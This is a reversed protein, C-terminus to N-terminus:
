SKKAEREAKKAEEKEILRILDDEFPLKEIKAPDFPPLVPEAVGYRRFVSRCEELDWHDCYPPGDAWADRYGATAFDLAKEREGLRAALLALPVQSVSKEKAIRDFVRRAEAEQGLEALALARRAEYNARRPDGLDNAIGVLAGFMDAASQFRGQEHHWLAVITMGNMKGFVFGTGEIRKLHDEAVASSLTGQRLRLELEFALLYARKDAEIQHKGARTRAQEWAAEAGALDGSLVNEGALNLLCWVVLDSDGDAESIRLAIQRLKASEAIKGMAMLCIALNGVSVAPAVGSRIYGQISKTHALAARNNMGLDLLSVGLEALMRAAAAEDNQVPPADFGRPFWARFLELREHHYALRFMADDLGSSKFLEWAQELRGAANLAQVRTMALALDERSRAEDLPRLLRSALADSVHAGAGERAAGSLSALVTHRIAPHLEYVVAEPEFQLLARQELDPLARVLWDDAKEAVSSWAAQAALAADFEAQREELNKRRLGDMVAQARAKAQPSGALQWKFYAEDIEANNTQYYLQEESWLEPKEPKEPEPPRMPNLLGILEQTLELNAMAISGLLAKQQEDLDDFAQKLIHNQRSVLQEAVLGPNAGGRPDDVWRDFDGRAPGFRAILGATVGVALPHCEFKESLFRQMRWADGRVGADALVRAADPPALGKLRMLAVGPIAQGADNTLAHPTLRSSALLKGKRAQALLALAEDDEPRFCARPARDLGLDDRLVEADTDAMHEKGARNYAVLVRELGDLTLLWPRSDLERLLEAALIPTRQRRFEKPPRGRVYAMAHVCFDHLDAGQEYFSYWFRGAWDGRTATARERLWHSTLMSKGMGGIAHVLLMADGSQAWADIEQLESVRGVFPRRQIYPKRVFHFEPARAPAVEDPDGPAASPPTAVRPLPEEEAAAKALFARFSEVAAAKLADVSSFSALITSKAREIFAEQLARAEDGEAAAARMEALTMAYDDAMQFMLRPIGREVARRFELETLSLREPNRRPCEPRQGYRAGILGVYFDAADVKALSADILDQPLAADTEQMLPVIRQGNMCLIVAKRHEELDRFTSSLMAKYHREARM